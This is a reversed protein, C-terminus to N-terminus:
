EHVIKVNDFAGPVDTLVTASSGAFTVGKLRIEEPLRYPHPASADSRAKVPLGRANAAKHAAVIAPLDDTTGDGKAGFQEYTVVDASLATGAFALVALVSSAAAFTLIDYKM